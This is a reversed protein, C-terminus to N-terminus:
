RFTTTKARKLFAKIHERQLYNTSTASGIYEKQSGCRQADKIRESGWIEVRPAVM